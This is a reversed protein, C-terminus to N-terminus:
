LRFIMEETVAVRSDPIQWLFEVTAGLIISPRVCQVGGGVVLITDVRKHQFRGQLGLGLSRRPLSPSPSVGGTTSEVRWAGTRCEFWAFHLDVVVRDVLGVVRRVWAHDGVVWSPLERSSVVMVRGRRSSARGGTTPRGWLWAGDGGAGNCGRRSAM